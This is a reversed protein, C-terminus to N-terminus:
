RDEGEPPVAGHSDGGKAKRPVPVLRMPGSDYFLAVAEDGYEAALADHFRTADYQDWNSPLTFSVEDRRHTLSVIFHGMM